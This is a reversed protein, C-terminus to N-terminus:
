RYQQNVPWGTINAVLWKPVVTEGGLLNIEAGNAADVYNRCWMTAWSSDSGSDKNVLIIPQDYWYVIPGASLGDPFNTGTVLTMGNCKWLGDEGWILDALRYSTEYRTQGSIRQSSSSTMISKVQNEVSTPIAAEGGLFIIRYFRSKNAKLFQSQASTLGSKDVIMIPIGTGSAALADPYNSGTAMIMPGEYADMQKLINLNTEYRDGGSIRQVDFSTRLRSELSSSLANTGGLLYIRGNSKVNNVCFNYAQNPNGPDVLLLPVSKDYVRNALVAGTLADPFNTGTALVVGDMKNNDWINRKVADAAELSTEYRTNGQWRFYKPGTAASVPVAAVTIMTVAAVLFSLLRKKM